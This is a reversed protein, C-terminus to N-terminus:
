LYILVGDTVWVATRLNLDGEGKNLKMIIFLSYAALIFDREALHHGEALKCCLSVDTM